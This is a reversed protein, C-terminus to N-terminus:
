WSFPWPEAMIPAHVLDFADGGQVADELGGAVRDRDLAQLLLQTTRAGGGVAVQGVQAIRQHRRDLAIAFGAEAVHRPFAFAEFQGAQPQTRFFEIRQQGRLLQQHAGAAAHEGARQRRQLLADFAQQGVVGADIVPRHLPHPHDRM